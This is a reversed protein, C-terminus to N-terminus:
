ARSDLWAPRTLGCSEYLREFFPRLSQVANDAPSCEGEMTVTDLMCKGRPGPPAARGPQIPVEMGRSKIGTMGAIWHFSPTIELRELVSQFLVLSRAYEGEVDPIVNVGNTTLHELYRADVAWIEGSRFVFTTSLAVNEGPNRTFVGFGDHATLYSMGSYGDWLLRLHGQAQVSAQRLQAPKWARGQQAAPMVRLWMRPGPALMIEQHNDPFHEGLGIPDVQSRFLGPAVEAAPQFLAPASPRPLTGLYSPSQLVLGIAHQLQKALKERVSKRTEENADAPCHYQIPHRHHRLDFPLTEDSPEGYATNMVPIIREHGLAKLAWGYEILVNPNQAPRGDARKAVFTFDPVFVAAGDIKSFITDVIPPFGAVNQTDRDLLLEREAQEVETTQGVSEIAKTLARELFNRCVVPPQDAQWSFFITAKMPEQKSPESCTADRSATPEIEALNEPVRLQVLQRGHGPASLHSGGDLSLIQLGMGVASDTVDGLLHPGEPVSRLIGEGAQLETM